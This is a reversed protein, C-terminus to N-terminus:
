SACVLLGSGGSSIDDQVLVGGTELPHRIRHALSTRDSEGSPPVARHGCISSGGQGETRRIHYSRNCRRHKNAPRASADDTSRPLNSGCSRCSHKTPWADQVSKQSWRYRGSSTSKPGCNLRDRGSNIWELWLQRKNPGDGHCRALNSRFRCADILMEVINTPHWAFTASSWGVEPLIAGSKPRTRDVKAWTPGVKIAITGLQGLNPFCACVEVLSPGLTSWARPSTSRTPGKRRQLQGLMSWSSVVEGVDPGVKVADQAPRPSSKCPTSGGSDLFRREVCM